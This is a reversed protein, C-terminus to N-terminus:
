KGGSSVYKNSAGKGYIADFLQRVTMGQYRPDSSNAPANPNAILADISDSPITLVPTRAEVGKQYGRIFGSKLESLSAKTTDASIYM